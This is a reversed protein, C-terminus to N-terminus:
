IYVEGDPLIVASGGGERVHAVFQVFLREQGVPEVHESEILDGRWKENVV